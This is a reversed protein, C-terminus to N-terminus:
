CRSQTKLPSLFSDTLSDGLGPLPRPSVSAQSPWSGWLGPCQLALPEQTSLFQDRCNTVWLTSAGM